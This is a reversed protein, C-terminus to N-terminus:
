RSRWNAPKPSILDIEIGLAVHQHQRVTSVWSSKIPPGLLSSNITGKYNKALAEAETKDKILVLVLKTKKTHVAYDGAVAKAAIKTVIRSPSPFIEGSWPISGGVYDPFGFIMAYGETHKKIFDNWSLKALIAGM